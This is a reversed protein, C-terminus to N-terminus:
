TQENISINSGQKLDIWNKAHRKANVVFDIKRDIEKISTKNKLGKKKNLLDLELDLLKSRNAEILSATYKSYYKQDFMIMNNEKIDKIMYDIVSQDEFYGLMYIIYQNHFFDIPYNIKKPALLEKLKRVLTDKKMVNIDKEVIQNFLLQSIRYKVWYENIDLRDILIQLQKPSLIVDNRYIDLEHLMLLIQEANGTKIINIVKDIHEKIDISKQTAIYKKRKDNDQIDHKHFDCPKIKNILGLDVLNDLKRLIALRSYGTEITHDKQDEHKIQLDKILTTQEVYGKRSLYDMIEQQFTDIKRQQM